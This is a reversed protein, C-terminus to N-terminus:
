YQGDWVFREAFHRGCDRLSNQWTRISMNHWVLLRFFYWTHDSLFDPVAKGTVDQMSRILYLSGVCCWCVNQPKWCSCKLQLSYSHTLQIDVVIVTKKHGLIRAPVNGTFNKLIIWCDWMHNSNCKFFFYCILLSKEGSDAALWAKCKSCRLGTEWHHSTVSVTAFCLSKKFSLDESCLFLFFFLFYLPSLWVEAFQPTGTLVDRLM